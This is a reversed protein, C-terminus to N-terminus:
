FVDFLFLYILGAIVLEIILIIIMKCMSTKAVYKNFRGTLTNMKEDTRDMDEAIQDLQKNQQKIVNKGEKALAEGKKVEGAIEIIKDDQNNLKKRELEMLEENTMNKYEEKDRYDETIFNKFKYKKSELSLFEKELEEYHINMSQIENQRENIAVSPISLNDVISPAYAKHLETYLDKFEKLLGRIRKEDELTIENGSSKKKYKVLENKINKELEKGKEQHTNYNLYYDKYPSSLIADM